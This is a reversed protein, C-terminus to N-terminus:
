LLSFKQNYPYPIGYLYVPLAKELGILKAKKRESNFINVWLPSELQPKNLEHQKM